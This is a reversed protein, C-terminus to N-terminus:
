AGKTHRRRPVFRAGVLAVVFVAFSYGLVRVPLYTPRSARFAQAEDEAVVELEVPYNVDVSRNDFGGGSAAPFDLDGTIVGELDRGAAGPFEPVRFHEVSTELKTETAYSITDGWNPESPPELQVTDDAMHLYLGQPWAAHGGVSAWGIKFGINDGRAGKLVLPPHPNTADAVPFNRITIQWAVFLV